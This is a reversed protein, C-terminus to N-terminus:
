NAMINGTTGEKIVCESYKVIEEINLISVKIAHGASDM